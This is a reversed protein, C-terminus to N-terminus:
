KFIADPYSNCTKPAKGVLESTQSTAVKRHDPRRKLHHQELVGEEVCWGGCAWCLVAGSICWGQYMLMVCYGLCLVGLVCRVCCLVGGGVCQNWSVSGLVGEWICRGWCMCQIWCVEGLM